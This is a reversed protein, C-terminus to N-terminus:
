QEDWPIGRSLQGTCLTLKGPEYACTTYRSPIGARTANLNRLPEVRLVFHSNEHRKKSYTHILEKSERGTACTAGRSLRSRSGYGDSSLRYGEVVMKARKDELRM